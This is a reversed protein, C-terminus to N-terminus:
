ARTLSIAVILTEWEARAHARHPAYVSRAYDQHFTLSAAFFPEEGV